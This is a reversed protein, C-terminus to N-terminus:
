KFLAEVREKRDFLLNYQICSYETLDNNENIKDASFLNGDSDIYGNANLVPYKEYLESLYKMQPTLEIGAVECLLTSLYNASITVDDREEIDFNAWLFFPVIYRKYQDEFSEPPYTQGVSTYLSRVVADGPQHDGFMLIVTPEDAEKFYEVLDGFALDSIRVLSLYEQLGASVKSDSVAVLPAFNNQVEGKYGSHNQMTVDFVFMPGDDKNEYLEIIKDYTASDSIYQRITEPNDFDNKFFMKDFGFYSYVKNRDWGSAYYPHMASSSYGLDNLHSVFSPMESKIFQQYPISGAPLFAMSSGTLFEFESNATNGGVVSVYLDGKVTNETLKSTFPMPNVNTEFDRLVSLDSYAENMIVIINPKTKEESSAGDGGDDAYEDAIGNVLDADYGDPKDVALYQLSFLLSVMMGDRSYVSNPTFMYPYLRFRLVIDDSQAYFAYGVGMSLSMVTLLVRLWIKKAFIKVGCKCAVQYMLIFASILIAMKYPFEFKYNDAVSIATGISGLDWPFLVTGRFSVVYYNAIGILAPFVTALVTSWFARRTLFLFFAAAIYYIVMNLLIVKWTMKGNFPNRIMWESLLMAAAPCIAWWVWGIACKVRSSKIKIPGAVISVAMIACLVFFHIRYAGGSGIGLASNSMISFMLVGACLFGPLFSILYSALSRSDKNKRRKGEKSVLEGIDAIQSVIESDDAAPSVNATVKKIEDLSIESSSLADENKDSGSEPEIEAGNDPEGEAPACVKETPANKEAAPDSDAASFPESISANDADSVSDGAPLASPANIGSPATIDANENENKGLGNDNENMDPIVGKKTKRLRKM